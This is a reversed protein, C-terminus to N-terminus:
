GSVQKWPPATLPVSTDVDPITLTIGAPFVFIDCYKINATILQGVYESSGMQKHAIADWMDGQITTYTKM